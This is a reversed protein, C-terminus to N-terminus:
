PAAVVRFTALGTTIQDGRAIVTYDGPVDAIGLQYTTTVKGDTSAAHAPGIFTGSPRQIEFIIIENPDAGTLKLDVSGGVQVTAPKVVLRVKRPPPVLLAQGATLRDPDVLANAEVIARTSVGFRRAIDSLVDGPMVIYNVRGRTTTTSADDRPPAMSTAPRSRTDPKGDDSGTDVLIVAVTALIFAVLTGVVLGTPRRGGSSTESDLM